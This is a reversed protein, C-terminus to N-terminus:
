FNAAKVAAGDIRLNAGTTYSSVPSALFVVANAVEDPAGHRGMASVFSARKFADPANKQVMHWFGGDFLIPGPSVANVRINDPAHRVAMQGVYNILAAKMAGYALEEPPLQTLISAISAIFVAAGSQSNKLHPLAQDFFRVHQLLDADFTDRWWNEKDLDNRTSVNSVIVDIGGLAKAANEIWACFATQDRVDIAEGHVNSDGAALLEKAKGVGDPSRACFAVNAGENVFSQAISFGIGRSAGTILINKNALQLDM